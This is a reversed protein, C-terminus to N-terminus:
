KCVRGEGNGYKIYHVYYAKWDDGYAAELDPNKERYARVDFDESADRGEAMGYDIFHQLLKEEDEGYAAALDEFANAYYVADFVLSYDLDEEQGAQANATANRGEAKGYLIYHIYYEKNDDGYAAELDSYNAKYANVDFEPSAVRGEAMGYEVFHQLMKAEDDGYAMAVDNYQAAYYTADFVASYDLDDSVITGTAVRGEAKGYEIYHTYYSAYNSGYADVLDSNNAMYVNIDFSESAIRGEAMGYNVFQEIMAEQNDGYAMAVDQYQAAYYKPHYVLSYDVGNYVTLPPREGSIPRGEKQGNYVYHMYCSKLDDGYAAAVDPNLAKYAHVNFDAKAQRGEMMGVDVFHTLMQKSSEGYKAAVDPNKETYYELDYVAAYDVGNLLTPAEKPMPCAEEPMNLYVPVKFVFTNDLAGVKAYMNRTIAGESTPASINQMYQHSYLAYYGERNVNYKQLYITDQGKSIYASALLKSGGLISFYANNWNQNRAYTLGREIVEKQTTGTAQVNFHNYYGEYGPYTGSILGSTGSGQEQYVRSALHFPSVNQEAGIAWFIHAYTMGTGPADERSNMFTNSLFADVAERTHYTENYTLLEFQFVASENLGNRPDLFYELAEETPYYWNGDDYCGERMYEPYSKYILSRNKQLQNYVVTDWDLGTDMRVFVWNPHRQKLAYLADKYSEPFQEIDQSRGAGDAYLVTAYPSEPLYEAEWNLFAEDSCALYFRPIYGTYSEGQYFTEVLVWQIYYEDVVVDRVFVTQGTPLEVIEEGGFSAETVLAQTDSLYVLAMVEHDALIKQLAATADAQTYETQGSVSGTAEMAYVPEPSLLLGVSLAVAM